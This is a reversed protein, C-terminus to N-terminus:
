ADRRLNEKALMERERDRMERKAKPDHDDFGALHLVGHVVYLALEECPQLGRAEAEVKAREASVVVEGVVHRDSGDPGGLPFALVDTPGDEGLFERNMAAIEADDVFAVSLECGKWEAPAAARCLRRLLLRDPQISNQRDAFSVKLM